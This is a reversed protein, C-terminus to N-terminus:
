RLSKTKFCFSCYSLAASAQWGHLGWETKVAPGVFSLLMMEMAEAVWAMGTYGLLLAQFPGFGLADIAEEMTFSDGGQEPGQKGPPRERLVDKEDGSLALETDPLAKAMTTCKKRAGKAQL